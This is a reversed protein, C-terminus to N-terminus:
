RSLDQPRSPARLLFTLSLGAVDDESRFSHSYLGSLTLHPSVPIDLSTNVGNDESSPSTTSTSVRKKGRGTTSYVTGRVLPLDEYADASFNVNHSLDISSGAQLHAILGVSTYSRRIRRNNLSSTDAIGLEVDPSFIGLSQEFHNTFSYTTKGAGLGFDTNGTPLGLNFTAAYDVLVHADLHAALSTDGPVGTKSALQYVPKAKTGRNEDVNIYGYIPVSADISFNRSFRYAVGPTIISSWGNSSDHQTASGLSANFGRTYPVIGAPGAGSAASTSGSVSAEEASLPSVHAEAQAFTPALCFAMSVLVLTSLTHRSSPM